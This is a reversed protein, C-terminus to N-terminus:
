LRWHALELQGQGCKCNVNSSWACRGKAKGWQTSQDYFIMISLNLELICYTNHNIFICKRLFIYQSLKNYEAM